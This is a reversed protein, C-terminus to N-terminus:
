EEAEPDDEPMEGVHYPNVDVIVLRPPRKADVDGAILRLELEADADPVPWTLTHSMPDLPTNLYQDFNQAVYAVAEALYRQGRKGALKDSNVIEVTM